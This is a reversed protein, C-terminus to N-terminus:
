REMADGANAPIYEAIRWALSKLVSGAALPIMLIKGIEVDVDVQRCRQRAPPRTKAAIRPM